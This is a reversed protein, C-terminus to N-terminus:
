SQILKNYEEHTGIWFWIIGDTSDVGFSRYKHGVRVSGFRGVKKLHLSPHHPNKKLLKFNKDALEQIKWPLDHYYKWFNPNAHHNV